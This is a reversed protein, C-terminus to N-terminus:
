PKPPSSFIGGTDEGGPDFCIEIHTLRREVGACQEYPLKPRALSRLADDITLDATAPPIAGELALRNRALRM